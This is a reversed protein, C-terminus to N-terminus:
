LSAWQAHFGVPVRRPLKVRAVPGASVDRGDLVVLETADARLDQVYTVVWGDDESTAGPRPAFCTEGGVRGEGWEFTQSTGKELDYKICADFLLTPRKAVRPHYAYRSPVGLWDDNMRPFESPVDDLQRSTAQGTGLNFRWEHLYPDLRLFYLRPVTPEQAHPVRPIPDTIRCGTMVIVTHGAADTEEWANVTHYVYCAETEFWRVAGGHRPLVGWRSPGERDFRVRRKGLKLKAEDWTMPLDLLVTHHATIAIDHFLSPRPTEIPACHTVRGEANAVGYRLFPREYPSYDFFILEGTRPDVKPHAAIGCPLTGGLDSRGVTDLTAVDLVYPAGGLWWLAMLRGNWWVLDTNATNKDPGAGRAFDVPELIGRTQQGGAALDAELGETRIYRNRYTAKGDEIHVGHVMGDGDFWHYAGHPPFRPNPNNQVYLGRMEHPLEGVVELDLDTREDEVPRYVGELYSAVNTLPGM